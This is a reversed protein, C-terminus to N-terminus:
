SIPIVALNSPSSIAYPSGSAATAAGKAVSFVYLKGVQQGLAYLHGTSDWKVQDIEDTTLPGGEATLKGNAFGYIQVGNQGAVALTDGAPDFRYDTVLGVQDTPMTANTDTTTLTGDTSNITYVALQSSGMQFGDPSEALAIVVHNDPSVAAGNPCYGFGTPPAPFTVQPDFYTLAGNANRMFGYVYQGGKLCNSGYAYADDATFPLVLQQTDGYKTTATYTLSGGSQIAFAQYRNNAGDAYIDNDYLDQGKADTFLSLPGGDTPYTNHAQANITSVQTLAGGSGISFTVISQDSETAFLDTSTGAMAGVQTATFPSGTIATLAGTSSAVYGQITNATRSSVYVYASNSTSGSGSGTGSGGGSGSGGSGSGSSGSGGSGSGGGSGGSGAGSSSSTPAPNSVSGCGAALGLLAMVTLFTFLVQLHRSARIM